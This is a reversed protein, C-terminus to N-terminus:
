WIDWNTNRNVDAEFIDKESAKGGFDIGDVASVSGSYMMIEGQMEVMQAQPKVYIKKEM